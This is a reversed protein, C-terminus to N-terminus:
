RNCRTSGPKRPSRTIVASTKPLKVFYGSACDSRRSYTDISSRSSLLGPTTPAATVLLTGSAPSCGPVCASGSELGCRCRAPLDDSPPRGRRWCSISRCASCGSGARARAEGLEIVLVRRLHRHDVLRHDPLPFPAVRDAGLDREVVSLVPDGHHPDDAVDLREAEVAVRDRLDIPRHALNAPEGAADQHPHGAIRRRRRGDDAAGHVADIRVQRDLVNPREVLDAIGRERRRPQRRHQQGDEGASASSTVTVPIVPTMACDTDCRVCSNPSRMASPALWCLTSRMTMPWPSVSTPMPRASPM